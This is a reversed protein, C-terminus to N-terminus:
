KSNIYEKATPLGDSLPGKSKVIKVSLEPFRQTIFGPHIPRRYFKGDVFRADFHAAVVSFKVQISVGYGLAIGALVIGIIIYRKM